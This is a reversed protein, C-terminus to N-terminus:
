KKQFTLESLRKKKKKFIHEPLDERPSDWRGWNPNRYHPSLLAWKFYFKEVKLLVQCERGGGMLGYNHVTM